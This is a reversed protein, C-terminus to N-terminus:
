APLLVIKGIVERRELMTQAQAAQELPLRASILPKIKGEALMQLLVAIDTRYSDKLKDLTLFSVKVQRGDPLLARGALALGVPLASTLNGVGRIGCIMLTGGRKLLGYSPLWTAGGVADFVADVGDPCERRVRTAFDESQYNIPIAGLGRVAEQKGASATGFVTLGAARGLQVLASGLGGAAGHALITQGERVTVDRHMVHYATWYNVTLCVADAPDVGAPVRVCRWAETCVHTAYGGSDMSAVVRDGVALDTVGQGAAEIVGVAEKGMVFPMKPTGPHGMGRRELVDAFIVGAAEIRIRVQGVAPEAVDTEIMQLVEVGGAKPLLVQRAKMSNM